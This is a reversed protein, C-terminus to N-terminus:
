RRLNAVQQALTAVDARLSGVQRRLAGIETSLDVDTATLVTLADRVNRDAEKLAAKVNRDALNFTDKLNKDATAIADRVNKDATGLLLTHAKLQKDHDDLREALTQLAELVATSDGGKDNDVVKPIVPVGAVPMKRQALELSRQELGAIRRELQVIQANVDQDAVEIVEVRQEPQDNQERPVPPAIIAPNSRSTMLTQTAFATPVAVLFAVMATTLLSSQKRRMEVSLAGVELNPAPGGTPKTEVEDARGTQESDVTVAEDMAANQCRQCVEAPTGGPTVLMVKGCSACKRFSESSVVSDSM